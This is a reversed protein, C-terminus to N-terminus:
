VSQVRIKVLMELDALLNLKGQLLNPHQENMILLESVIFGEYLTLNDARRTGAKEWIMLIRAECDSLSSTRSPMQVAAVFPDSFDM